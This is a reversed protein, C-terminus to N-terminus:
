LTWNPEKFWVLAARSYETLGGYGDLDTDRDTAFPTATYVTIAEPDVRYYFAIDGHLAHDGCIGYGTTEDLAGAGQILAVLGRAAAYEADELGRVQDFAVAWPLLDSCAM